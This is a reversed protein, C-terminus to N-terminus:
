PVPTFAGVALLFDEFNSDIGANFFRFLIWTLAM